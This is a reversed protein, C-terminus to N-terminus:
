IRDPSTGLPDLASAESRAIPPAEEEPAVSRQRLQSVVLALVASIGGALGVAALIFLM